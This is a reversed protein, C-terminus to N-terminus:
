VGTVLLGLGADAPLANVVGGTLAAFGGPFGPFGPMSVDFELKIFIAVIISM